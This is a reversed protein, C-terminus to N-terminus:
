NWAPTGCARACQSRETEGREVQRGDVVALFSKPFLVHGADFGFRARGNKRQM